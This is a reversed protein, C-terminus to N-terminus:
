STETMSGIDRASAAAVRAAAANSAQQSGARRAARVSGIRASFYSRRIWHGHAHTGSDTGKLALGCVPKDAIGLVDVFARASTRPHSAYTRM